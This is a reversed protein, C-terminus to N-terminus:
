TTMRLARHRPTQASTCLRQRAAVSLVRPVPSRGTRPPLNLHLAAWGLTKTSFCQLGCAVHNCSSWALHREVLLHHLSPRIQEPRLQDPSCWSFTARGAVAAVSADQTQPALRQLQRQRMM